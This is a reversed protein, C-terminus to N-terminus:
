SPTDIIVWYLLDHHENRVSIITPELKKGVNRLRLLGIRPRDSLEIQTFVDDPRSSSISLHAFDKAFREDIAPGEHKFDKDFTISTIDNAPKWGTLTSMSIIDHSTKSEVLRAIAVEGPAADGFDLTTGQRDRNYSFASRVKASTSTVLQVSEIPNAFPAQVYTSRPSAALTARPQVYVIKPEPTIGNRFWLCAFMLIALGFSIHVMKGQVRLHFNAGILRGIQRLNSNAGLFRGVKRWM